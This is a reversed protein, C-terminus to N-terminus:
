SREKTADHITGSPARSREGETREREREIHELPQQPLFPQPYCPPSCNARNCQLKPPWSCVFVTRSLQM